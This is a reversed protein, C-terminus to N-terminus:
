TPDVSDPRPPAVSLRESGIAIEITAPYAFWGDKVMRGHWNYVQTSPLTNRARSLGLRWAENPSVGPASPWLIVRSGVRKAIIYYTM